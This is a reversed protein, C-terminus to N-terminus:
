GILGQMFVVPIGNNRAYAIETKMGPSIRPGCVWLENCRNLLEIGMKMGLRREAEINDDLYQTFITHPALPIVDYAVAKRCYDNALRINKEIDGALPSCIFVLKKM